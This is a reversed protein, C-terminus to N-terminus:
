LFYPAKGGAWKLLQHGLCGRFMVSFFDRRSLFNSLLVEGASLNLFIAVLFATQFRVIPWSRAAPTRFVRESWQRSAYSVTEKCLYPQILRSCHTLPLKVGRSAIAELNDVFNRYFNLIELTRFQFPDIPFMDSQAILTSKCVARAYVFHCIYIDFSM